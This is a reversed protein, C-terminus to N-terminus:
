HFVGRYPALGEQALVDLISEHADRDHIVVPLGTEHSLRLFKRLCSLQQERPSYEKFYDLGIEGVAVVAPDDAMKCVSEFAQDDCGSADHPHIGVAAHVSPHSRAIAIAAASSKADIGVTIVHAVGAASARAIMDERDPDLEAMDLHAHTDIMAFIGQPLDGRDM